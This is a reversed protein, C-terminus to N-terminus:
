PTRRDWHRHADGDLQFLRGGAELGAEGVILAAAKQEPGHDAKRRILGTQGLPPCEQLLPEATVPRLERDEFQADRLLREGDSSERNLGRCSVQSGGSGRGPEGDTARDSPGLLTERAQDIGADRRVDVEDRHRRSRQRISRNRRHFRERGRDLRGEDVLPQRRIGLRGSGRQDIQVDHAQGGVDHGDRGVALRTSELNRDATQPRQGDKEASVDLRDVGPGRRQPQADLSLVDGVCTTWRRSNSFRM